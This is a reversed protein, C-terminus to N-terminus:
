LIQFVSIGVTTPHRECTYSSLHGVSKSFSLFAVLTSGHHLFVFQLGQVFFIPEEFGQYSFQERQFLLQRLGRRADLFQLLAQAFITAGATFRGGRISQSPQGATRRTGAALRRSTLSAMGPVAQLHCLLGILHEM